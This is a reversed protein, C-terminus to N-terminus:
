WGNTSPKELKRECWERHSMQVAQSQYRTLKIARRVEGHIPGRYGGKRLLSDITELHDWGVCVFFVCVRALWQLIARGGIPGCLMGQEPAIQPLYTASRKYGRHDLFEIRIGHVGITWDM